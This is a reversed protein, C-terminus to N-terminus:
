PCVSAYQLAAAPVIRSSRTITVSAAEANGFPVHLRGAARGFNYGSITVTTGGATWGNHVCLGTVRPTLDVVEFDNARMSMVQLFADM